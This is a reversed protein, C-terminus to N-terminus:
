AAKPLQRLTELVDEISGPRALLYGQAYDFGAATADVLQQETEIGELVCRLSLTEALGRIASVLRRGTADALQAAFSRDVKLIDLPLEHLSSLSSFGTGFDDLAVKAGVARLRALSRRTTTMDSILSNETIEFVLRTADVPSLTLEDLIMAITTEDALDVASLNFNLRIEAPLRAAGALAKEFLKLTTRRAMGARESTAILREPSVVGISPSTWRALAEVAVVQHTRTSFVPQFAVALERDLDAIQFASEVARESRIMGDLKSSFVVCGGRRHDKAHYLAFDARDLLDQANHAAQPYGAIGISCGVVVTAGTLPVPRKIIECLRQGAKAAQGADGNFLIGFEDGGLRAVTCDSGFDRLRESIVKLLSDGQAHGYTDNVPKFGDLDVLAVAFSSQATALRRELEDHFFRRNPLGTLPDTRALAVNTEILVEAESQKHALDRQSLELRLFAAFSDRLVKLIVLTVLAINVAVVMGVESGRAFSYILFAGIVIGCVLMAAMPLYGLCFICAVVTMAIFMSVHGHQDPGGYQDLALAWALFAVAIFAALFITRRLKARAEIRSPAPERAAFLWRVSRIMCAAILVAPVAITLSTPALDRHTYALSAASVSLLAYLPAIQRQLNTVQAIEFDSTRM